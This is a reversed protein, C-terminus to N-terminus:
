SIINLVTVVAVILIFYLKYDPNNLLWGWAISILISCVVIELIVKLTVYLADFFPISEGSFMIWLVSFFKFAFAVSFLIFGGCLLVSAFNRRSELEALVIKWYKVIFFICGFFMIAYPWLM